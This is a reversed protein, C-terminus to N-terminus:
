LVVPHSPTLNVFVSGPLGFQGFTSAMGSPFVAQSPIVFAPHNGTASFVNKLYRFYGQKLPLRAAVPALTAVTDWHVRRDVYVEPPVGVAPLGVINM